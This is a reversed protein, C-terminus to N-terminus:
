KWFFSYPNMGGAYFTFLYYELLMLVIFIFYALLRSFKDRQTNIIGPLLIISSINYYMGVRFINPQLPVFIQIIIGAFMMNLFLDFNNLRSDIRRRFGLAIIFILFYVVLAAWGGSSINSDAVSYDSYFLKQIINLLPIRTLYIIPILSIYKILNKGYVRFYILFYTPIFLIASQHFLSAILILILFKKFNRKAVCDIAFLIISYALIQRLGTLSFAYYEMAILMIFSVMPDLSYKFIFRSISYAYVLGIFAFMIQHNSSIYSLIKILFYFGFENRHISYIDKFSLYQVNYFHRSYQGSDFGVSTSRLAAIMFLLFGLIFCYHRWNKGQLEERWKKRNPIVIRLMIAILVFLSYIDM